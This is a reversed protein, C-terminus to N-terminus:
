ESFKLEMRKWKNILNSAGDQSQLTSKFEVRRLDWTLFSYIPTHVVKNKLYVM